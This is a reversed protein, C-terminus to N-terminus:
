NRAPETKAPDTKAPDPKAPEAPQTTAPKKKAAQEDPLVLAGKTGCAALAAVVLLLMPIQFIRRKM